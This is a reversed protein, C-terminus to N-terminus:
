NALQAETLQDTDLDVMTNLVKAYAFRHNHKLAFDRAARAYKESKSERSGYKLPQAQGLDLNEIPVKQYRERIKECHSGWQEDTLQLHDTAEEEPDLVFGEGQLEVCQKVRKAYREASRSEKIEEQAAELKAAAKAYQKKLGRHEKELKAYRAKHGDRQKKYQQAQTPEDAEKEWKQTQPDGLLKAYMEKHPQPAGEMYYQMLRNEHEGMGEMYKKAGDVHEDNCYKEYFRKGYHKAYLKDEEDLEEMAEPPVDLPAAEMPPGEEAPPGLDDPPPGAALDEDGPGMGAPPLSEDGVATAEAVAEEVLPKIVNAMASVIEAIDAQTLTKDQTHLADMDSEKEPPQQYHQRRRRRKRTTGTTSVFTNAPSGVPVTPGPHDGGGENYKAPQPKGPLVQDDTVLFEQSSGDMPNQISFHDGEADHGLSRSGPRFRVAEPPEIHGTRMHAPKANQIPWRKSYRYPTKGNKTQSYFTGLDRRPTEAGLLAIPDIYREEPSEEPWIEVSRRPRRRFTDMKDKFIRFRAYICARPRKKGFKGVRFPGALGVVPPDEDPSGDDQTHWEVVPAFDGTDDIRSNNNAAIQGLLQGDYRVGDDGVHEDFIPLWGVDVLENGALHNDMFFGIFPTGTDPIKVPQLAIRRL